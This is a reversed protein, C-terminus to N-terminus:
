ALAAQVDKAWGVHVAQNAEIVPRKILTPHAV